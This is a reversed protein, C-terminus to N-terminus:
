TGQYLPLCSRKMEKEQVYEGENRVLMKRKKTKQHKMEKEQVYEGENRVLMKRKKTKGTNNGGATGYLKKLM